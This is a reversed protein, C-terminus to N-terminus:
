FYLALKFMIRRAPLIPDTAVFETQYFFHRNLLNTVGLTALGRKGPLEYGLGANVLGFLNDGRDTLDQKLFVSNIAARLGSPHWFVLQAYTAYEKYDHSDVFNPDVKGALVGLNLGFYRGLIRNIIFSAHYRKWMWSVRSEQGEADVEYLPVSIRHANLRLTSFTKPDWQAEWALGAERVLAGNDVNIQWPFSAVEAPVLTPSYFYHTNVHEQLALRLTHKKTVEYNIGLRGSWKNNYIPTAFGVRSNKAIDKFVGMQIVLDPRIKWYDLLYFTYSRDPPRYALTSTANAAINIPLTYPNAFTTNLFPFTPFTWASTLNYYDKVLLQVEEQSRYKLHGSFYDFGSFLTHSGLILQKQIQFNHFEHSISQLYYDKYTYTSYGSDTQYWLGPIIAAPPFTFPVQGSGFTLDNSRTDNVSYNYYTLLTANPNFRYVYGLEYTRTRRNQRWYPSNNYAYDNLNRDDGREADFYSFNAFLSQKVTPEWKGLASIFYNKYDANKARFGRDEDYTGAVDFALGPLGGYVEGLNETIAQKEKWAGIGGQLTARLYPMEFMPTYDNYLSFTNQNAPSLLRYLLLSTGGAGLRNTTAVYSQALFLNASSNTPDQNVATVAKSYAWDGLGLNSFSRALNYNSVARDQDLM